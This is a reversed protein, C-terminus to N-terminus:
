KGTSGTLVDEILRMCMNDTKMETPLSQPQCNGIGLYAASYHGGCASLSKSFIYVNTINLCEKFSFELCAALFVSYLFLNYISATKDIFPYTNREVLEHSKQLEAVCCLGTQCPLSKFSLNVEPFMKCTGSTVHEREQM